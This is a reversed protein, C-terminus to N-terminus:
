IETNYASEFYFSPCYDPVLVILDVGVGEFGFTFCSIGGEFGLSM